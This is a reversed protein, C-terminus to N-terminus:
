DHPSFKVDISVSPIFGRVQVDIDGRENAVRCRAGNKMTHWPGPFRVDGIVLAWELADRAGAVDEWTWGPDLDLDNFSM